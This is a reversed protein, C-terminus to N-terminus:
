STSLITRCELLQNDVAFTVLITLRKSNKKVKPLSLSSYFGSSSEGGSNEDWSNLERVVM